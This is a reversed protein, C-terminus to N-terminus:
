IYSERPTPSLRSPKTPLIPSLEQMVPIFAAKKENTYEGSHPLEGLEYINERATEEMAEIREKRLEKFVRRAISWAVVKLVFVVISAVLIISGYKIAKKTEPNTENPDVYREDTIDHSVAARNSQPGGLWELSWLYGTTIATISAYVWIMIWFITVTEYILIPLVFINSRRKWCFSYTALSFMAFILFAFNIFVPLWTPSYVISCISIILQLKTVISEFIVMCRSAIKIPIGCAKM